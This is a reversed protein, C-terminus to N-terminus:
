IKSLGLNVIRIWRNSNKKAQIPSIVRYNLHNFQNIFIIMLKMIVLRTLKNETKDPSLDTVPFRRDRHINQNEMSVSYNCGPESVFSRNSRRPSESNPSPSEMNPFKRAPSSFCDANDTNCNDFSQDCESLQKNSLLFISSSPAKEGIDCLLSSPSVSSVPPNSTFLSFQLKNPRHEDNKSSASFLLTNNPRELMNTDESEVINEDELPKWDEHCGFSANLSELESRRIEPIRRSGVKPSHGRTKLNQPRKKITDVCNEFPPFNEEREVSSPFTLSKGPLDIGSDCQPDFVDSDSFVTTRDHNNLYAPINDVSSDPSSDVVIGYRSEVPSAVDSRRLEASKTRMQATIAGNEIPGTKKVPSNDASISIENLNEGESYGFLSRYPHYADRAMPSFGTSSLKNLPQIDDNPLIQTPYVILSDLNHAALVPHSRSRLSTKLTGTGEDLDVPGAKRLELPKRSLSSQSSSRIRMTSKNKLSRSSQYSNSFPEITKTSVSVSCHLPSLSSVSVLPSTLSLTDISSDGAESSPTVLSHSTSVLNPICPSKSRRAYPTTSNCPVHSPSFSPHMVLPSSVPLPANKLSGMKTERSSLDNAPSVFSPFIKSLPAASSVFESGSLSATALQLLAPKRNKLVYRPEFAGNVSNETNGINVGEYVQHQPSPQRHQGARPNEENLKSSTPMLHSTRSSSKSNSRTHEDGEYGFDASQHVGSQVAMASAPAYKRNLVPSTPEYTYLRREVWTEEEEAVIQRSIVTGDDLTEHIVKTNMRKNRPSPEYMQRSVNSDVMRMDSPVASSSSKYHENKSLYFEQAIRPEGNYLGEYQNRRDIGFSEGRRPQSYTM